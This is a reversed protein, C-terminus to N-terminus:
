VSSSYDEYSKEEMLRSGFYRSIESKVAFRRDNTHYVKRALAIFEDDFVKAKEKLRIDDEVEWLIENIEQLQGVLPIDLDISNDNCISELASLETRINVLKQSDSIRQKKIRLITIKDVLEGVSVPVSLNTM